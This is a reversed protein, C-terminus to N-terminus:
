LELNHKATKISAYCIKRYKGYNSTMELLIDNLLKESYTTDKLVSLLRKLIYDTEDKTISTDGFDLILTNLFNRIKKDLEDVTIKDFTKM